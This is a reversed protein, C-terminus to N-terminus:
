LRHLEADVQDFRADLIFDYARTLGDEGRLDPQTSVPKPPRRPISSRRQGVDGRAAALRDAPTCDLLLLAFLAAACLRLGSRRQTM